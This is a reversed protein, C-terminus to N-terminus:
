PGESVIVDDELSCVAEAQVLLQAAGHYTGTEEGEEVIIM